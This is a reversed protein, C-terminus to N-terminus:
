NTLFMNLLASKKVKTKDEYMHLEVKKAIVTFPKCLLM